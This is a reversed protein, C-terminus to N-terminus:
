SPQSVYNSQQFGLKMWLPCLMTGVLLLGAIWVERWPMWAPAPSGVM